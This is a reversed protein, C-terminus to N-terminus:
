KSVRVQPVLRRDYPGGPQIWELVRFLPSLRLCDAWRPTALCGLDMAHRVQEPPRFDDTQGGATDNVDFGGVLHEGVCRRERWKMEVRVRAVM